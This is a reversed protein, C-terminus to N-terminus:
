KAKQDFGNIKLLAGPEVRYRIEKPAQADSIILTTKPKESGTVELDTQVAKGKYDVILVQSNDKVKVAHTAGETTFKNLESKALLDFRAAWGLVNTAM